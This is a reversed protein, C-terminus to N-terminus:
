RFTQLGNNCLLGDPHETKEATQLTSTEFPFSVNMLSRPIFENGKQKTKHGQQCSSVRKTRPFLHTGGHLPNFSM